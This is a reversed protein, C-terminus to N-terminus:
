TIFRIPWIMPQEKNNTGLLVQQKNNSPSSIPAVFYGVGLVCQFIGCFLIVWRDSLQSSIVIRILAFLNRTKFDSM